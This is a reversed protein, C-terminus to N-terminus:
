KKVKFFERVRAAIQRDTMKDVREVSAIKPAMRKSATIEKEFEVHAEGPGLVYISDADRLKEILRQYYAHLQHRRREDPKRDSVVSQPGYPTRSRSGGSLRYHSEAGSEIREIMQQEGLLTVIVAKEHDIWIGVLKKLCGDERGGRRWAASRRPDDEQPPRIRITRGRRAVGWPVM